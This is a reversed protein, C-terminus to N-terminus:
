GANSLAFLLCSAARYYSPERMDTGCELFVVLVSVKARVLTWGEEAAVAAAKKIAQERAKEETEYASVWADLQEQLKANGPRAAKFEEM